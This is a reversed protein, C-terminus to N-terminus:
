EGMEIIQGRPGVCAMGIKGHYREMLNLTALCQEKPMQEFEISYSSLNQTLIILIWLGNM